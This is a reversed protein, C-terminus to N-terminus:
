PRFCTANLSRRDTYIQQHSLISRAANTTSDYFSRHALLAYHSGERAFGDVSIVCIRFGCEHEGPHRARVFRIARRFRCRCNRANNIIVNKKCCTRARRKQSLSSAFLSRIPVSVATNMASQDFVHSSGRVLPLCVQLVASEPQHSASAIDVQM